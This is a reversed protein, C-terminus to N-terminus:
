TTFHGTLFKRYVLFGLLPFLGLILAATKYGTTNEGILLVVVGWTLPSIVSAMRESLAMFAFRTTIQGEPSFGILVVRITTWLSALLIGFLVAVFYISDETSVFLLGFGAAWGLFIYKLFIKSDVRSIIYGAVPASIVAFIGAFAITNVIQNQDFGFVKNLYVSMFIILGHAADTLLLVSIIFLTFKRDSLVKRLSIKESERNIEPKIFFLSPLAFVTFILATILFVESPNESLYNALLMSAIGGVYGIGVGAGSVIGQREPSSVETLLSNYLILSQQYFINMVFFVSLALFLNDIFYLSFLLATLIGVCLKFLRDKLNLEDALKGVIIGTLISVIISTSYVFSYHYSNGGLTNIIWLPFFVSIINASFVTEAFDFLVWAATQLKKM